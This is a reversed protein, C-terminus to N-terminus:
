RFGAARGVAKRLRSIIRRPTLPTVAILIHGSPDKVVNVLFVRRDHRRIRRASSTLRAGRLAASGTGGFADIHVRLNWRHGLPASSAVLTDIRFHARVLTGEGDPALSVTDAALHEAVVRVPSTVLADLGPHPSRATIEITPGGGGSSCVTASVADLKAIWAASASTIDQWEPRPADPEGDALPYGAYRRGGSRVMPPVGHRADHRIVTILDDVTGHAAASLRIRTEIDLQDRIEDTLHRDVLDAAGLCVLEQTRRDLRLFDDGLLKGLEWTFHRFLLTDRRTGPEVLDAVFDMIRGAAALRELHRSSYTINGADLRRVAYYYDYDALVTVRNARCIAEITFPQDSAVPMDEPFRLGHREVLERRFLKYNALSWRLGSDADFLDIAPETRAYVQQHIYRNNVGVARGLVVDSGYRDAADVLRELTERGLYDDAGVFYVYRGRALSLARNCPGAPGGSNQQHVVRVVNPYRRAFRDLQRQSGDTSGDDIAIIEMRGAGISQKALSRLCRTLYPMTNYVPVVVSVDPTGM